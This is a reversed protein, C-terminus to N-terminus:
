KMKLSRYDYVDNISIMLDNLRNVQEQIDEQIRDSKGGNADQVEIWQVQSNITALASLSQSLQLEAQKMRTDLATLAQWQKQKSELTRNLEQQFESSESRKRQDKLTSIERPVSEMELKILNDQGYADLCVALQFINEIWDNLENATQEPRDWLMSADKRRVIKEIRRQYELALEVNKRLDLIKIRRLDFQGQFEALLLQANGTEDTLSFFFIVGVGVLGALIWGWAPWWSFPHPLLWTLLISSAILIANEWRLLAYQVIIRNSQNNQNSLKSFLNPM